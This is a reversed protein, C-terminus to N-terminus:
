NSALMSYSGGLVGTLVLATLIGAGVRDATTVRSMNPLHEDDTLGAGANVDGQSTGTGAVASRWGPASDVLNSQVIEMVAMQEGVGLSGDNVPGETWRLGCATGTEGSTCTGVAATASTRLEKIINDHTHPVLEATAALWRAYYAKFSRQDVNCKNIPECGEYMIDDIFFKKGAGILGDVREKWIASGNTHNYMAAAGMLMVGSNYTWTNADMETCNDTNHAGDIISYTDHKIYNVNWMWEWVKSAEEAYTENGTYLALRSALNFFCGNSISNKYNYGTNFPFIQWRLGGGCSSPDWRTKQGNFVAQVLALWGPTPAPPDTFGTEAATMAAMGWFGQDDNGLTKSQNIPMFDFDEGAQHILGERVNDNYSTDGTYYWYNILSGFMAGCEWWYYPDPLNGPVDGTENGTYYQMMDWAARGAAKKISGEDDLNLEIAASAFHGALICVTASYLFSPLRM